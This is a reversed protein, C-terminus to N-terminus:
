FTSRLRRSFEALLFFLRVIFSFFIYIICYYMMHECQAHSPRQRQTNCTGGDGLTVRDCQQERDNAQDRSDHLQVALEDAIDDCRSRKTQTTSEANISGDHAM